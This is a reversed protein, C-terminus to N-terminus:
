MKLEGRRAAEPERRAAEAKTTGEKGAATICTVLAAAASRQRRKQGKQGAIGGVCDDKRLSWIFLDTLNTVKFFRYIILM